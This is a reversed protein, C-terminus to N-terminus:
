KGGSLTEIVIDLSARWFENTPPKDGIKAGRAMGQRKKVEHIFETANYKDVIEGMIGNYNDWSSPTEDKMANVDAIINALREDIEDTDVSYMADGDITDIEEADVIGDPLALLEEVPKNLAQATMSLAAIQSWAPDAEFALFHKTVQSRKSIDPNEKSKINATMTRETRRLILPIGALGKRFGAALYAFTNLSETLGIINHISGTSLRYYALRNGILKLPDKPDRVLVFLLARAKCKLCRPYLPADNRNKGSCPVVAGVSFKEGTEEVYDQFVKGDRIVVAGSDSTPDVQWTINEGDGQCYLGGSKFLEYYARFNRDREQYPLFVLLEKPEKGYHPILDPADALVFHDAEVPYEVGKGSIKKLGLRIRGAEPFGYEQTQLDKIPM